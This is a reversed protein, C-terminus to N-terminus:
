KALGSVFTLAIGKKDARGTRGIRHIYDEYNAPLDFNIVHSVNSIDLGRAAVDTAVLVRLESKKFAQLARLRFNQSKDGHISDAKVGAARLARSIKEVGFKTRGFILVKDFGPKALLEVLVQLKANKDNPVHVIDQEVNASTDRTKVSVKVPNNMFERILSEVSAELTATFFLSHRVKPLQGLIFKIDNVFGMDVMRDAEDLVVNTFRDLYLMKRKCLDILRGPTGILFNFPSRIYQAQARINSGGICLVSGINMGGVFGKLEDSIQVALERTPTVIIIKQTRDHLVKDILPILFAATKGTGTNALGIVDKGELAVPISMDQIPSPSIYGKKSINALLKPDIAFDKFQHQLVHETPKIFAEDNVKNILQDINITTGAIRKGGRSGGRGSGSGGRNRGGGFGGGFSRPRETKEPRVTEYNDARRNREFRPKYGSDTSGEEAPQQYDSASNYRKKFGTNTREGYNQRFEGATKGSSSKSFGGETRESRDGFSKKFGGESRPSGYSKKFGGETKAGFSRKKFGGKFGGFSSSKKEPATGSALADSGFELKDATFRRKQFSKNQGPRGFSPKGFGPKAAGFGRRPPRSQQRNYM